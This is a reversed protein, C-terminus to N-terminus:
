VLSLTYDSADVLYIGGVSMEVPAPLAHSYLLQDVASATGIVGIHTVTVPSVTVANFPTAAINYSVGATPSSFTGALVRSYWSASVETGASFADTPDATFLAFKVSSIVPFAAGNLTSSLVANALYTSFGSM